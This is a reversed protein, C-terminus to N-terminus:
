ICCPWEFSKFFIYSVLHSLKQKKKLGNATRYNKKNWGSLSANGKIIIFQKLYMYKLHIKWFTGGLIMSSPKVFIESNWGFKYIVMCLSLMYFCSSNKSPFAETKEKATHLFAFFKNVDCANLTNSKCLCAQHFHLMDLSHWASFENPVGAQSNQQNTHRPCIDFM